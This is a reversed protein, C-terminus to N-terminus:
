FFAFLCKEKDTETKENTTHQFLSLFAAIQKRVKENISTTTRTTDVNNKVHEQNKEDASTWKYIIRCPSGSSRNAGCDSSGFSAAKKRKPQKIKLQARVIWEAMVENGSSGSSDNNKDENNFEKRDNNKEDNDDYATTKKNNAAM